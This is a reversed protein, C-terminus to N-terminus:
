ASFHSLHDALVQQAIAESEVRYNIQYLYATPRSRSAIAPEWISLLFGGEVSTISHRIPISPQSEDADAAALVKDVWDFEHTLTEQLAYM